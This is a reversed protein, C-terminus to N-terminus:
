KIIDERRRGKYEKGKKERAKDGEECIPRYLKSTSQRYEGSLM